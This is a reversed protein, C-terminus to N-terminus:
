VHARGIEISTTMIPQTNKRASVSAPATANRVAIAPRPPAAGVGYVTCHNRLGSRFIATAAPTTPDAGHTLASAARTSADCSGAREHVADSALTAVRIASSTADIMCTAEPDYLGKM